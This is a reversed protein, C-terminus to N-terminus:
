FCNLILLQTSSGAGHLDEASQILTGLAKGSNVFKRMTLHTSIILNAVSSSQPYNDLLRRNYKPFVSQYQWSLSHFQGTNGLLAGYSLQNSRRDLLCSTMPEFGM